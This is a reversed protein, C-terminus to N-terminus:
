CCPALDDFGVTKIGHFSIACEDGCFKNGDNDIVFEYEKYIEAGCEACEGIVKGNWNPDRSSRMKPVKEKLQTDAKM